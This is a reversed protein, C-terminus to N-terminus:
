ERHLESCCLLLSLPRLEGRGPSPTTNNGRHSPVWLQEGAALARHVNCDSSPRRDFPYQPKGSRGVQCPAITV